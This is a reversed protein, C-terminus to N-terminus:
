CRVSRLSPSTLLGGASTCPVRPACVTDGHEPQPAIQLDAEGIAVKQNSYFGNFGTQMAFAYSGMDHMAIWDGEQIDEPLMFPGAIHDFSDCTPGFFQFPEVCVEFAQPPKARILSVHIKRKLWCLDFLAGYGGDNLYLADGKRLNVRLVLITFEGSLALGPEGWIQCTEPLNLYQIERKIVSFFEEVSPINEGLGRIPFGGGVDLIDLRVGSKLIVEGCIQIATAYSAPDVTQSGVHFALGAKHSSKRAAALLAPAMDLPAGFKSSLPHLASGKSMELRVLLTLDSAYETEQKIKELEEFCDLAFTRIGFDFYASRIAERSKVPNMFAMFASPFMGHILRIESLSAVDFGRIGSSYLKTLVYPDPNSKMAYLTMGPFGALFASASKALAEHHLCYLPLEPRITRVATEINSFNALDFQAEPTLHITGANLRKLAELM